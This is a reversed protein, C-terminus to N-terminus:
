CWKLKFRISDNMEEFFFKGWHTSWNGKCNAECWIMEDEFDVLQQENLLNEIWSHIFSNPTRRHWKLDVCWQYRFNTKM